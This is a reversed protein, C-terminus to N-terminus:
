RNLSRALSKVLTESTRAWRTTAGAFGTAAAKAAGGYQNTLEKLILNQAKLKQGSAELAKIQEKQQETFQIGSRSLATLNQSPANLAKAVQLLSDKVAGGNLTALDSAVNIVREYDKVAIDTFSTLLAAGKTFDEQNFLTSDGFKDAQKQLAALAATGDGAFKKLGNALANLDAERKGLIGLSTNLIRIAGYAAVIPGLTSRFAVGFRQINGTATAAARGTKKITNNAQPLTKNIKEVSKELDQMRKELKQVAELGVVRAEVDVSAKAM